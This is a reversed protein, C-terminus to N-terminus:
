EREVHVLGPELRVEHARGAGDGDDEDDDAQDDCEQQSPQAPTAVLALQFPGSMAVTTAGSPPRTSRATAGGRDRRRVPSRWGRLQTPPAAPQSHSTM